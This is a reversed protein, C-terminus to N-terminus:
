FSKETALHSYLKTFKSTYISTNLETLDDKKLPQPPSTSKTKDGLKTESESVKFDVSGWMQCSSDLGLSAYM